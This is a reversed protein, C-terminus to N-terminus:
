RQMTPSHMTICLFGYLDKDKPELLDFIKENYLELYSMTLRHHQFTGAAKEATVMRLLAAVSRPIIGPDASRRRLM